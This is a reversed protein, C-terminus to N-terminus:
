SAKLFIKCFFIVLTWKQKFHDDNRREFLVISLFITKSVIQDTTITPKNIICFAM